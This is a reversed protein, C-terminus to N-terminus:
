FSLFAILIRKQFAQKQLTVLAVSMFGFFFNNQSYIQAGGLFNQTLGGLM